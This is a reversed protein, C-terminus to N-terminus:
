PYHFASHYHQGCRRADLDAGDSAPVLADLRADGSHDEHVLHVPLVAVELTAQLVDPGVKATAAHGELDGDPSLLVEM